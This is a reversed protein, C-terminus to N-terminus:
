AELFRIIPFLTGPKASRQGTPSSPIASLLREVAESVSLSAKKGCAKAIKGEAWPFWAADHTHAETDERVQPVICMLGELDAKIKQFRKSGEKGQWDLIDKIRAGSIGPNRTVLDLMAPHDDGRVGQAAKIIAASALAHVAEYHRCAVVTNRGRFLKVLATGDGLALAESM